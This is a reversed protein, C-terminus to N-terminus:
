PLYELISPFIYQLFSISVGLLNLIVPILCCFVALGVVIAVIIIGTKNKGNKQDKSNLEDSM